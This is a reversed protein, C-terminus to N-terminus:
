NDDHLMLVPSHLRVGARDIKLLGAKRAKVHLTARPAYGPVELYGFTAGARRPEMLRQMVGYSFQRHLNAPQEGATRRDDGGRTDSSSRINQGLFSTDQGRHARQDAAAGVPDTGSRRPAAVLDLLLRTYTGIGGTVAGIPEFCSLVFSWHCSLNM